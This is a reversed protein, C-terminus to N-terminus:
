ERFLVRTSDLGCAQADGSDCARQLVARVAGREVPGLDGGELHHAYMRCLYRGHDSCLQDFRARAADREAPTSAATAMTRAVMGCALVEGAGCGRDFLRRACTLDAPAQDVDWHYAAYNTCGIAFGLRCGQAFWPQAAESGDRAQVDWAHILCAHADGEDCRRECTAEAECADDIEPPSRLPGLEDALCPASAGEGQPATSGPTGGPPAAPGARCGAVAWGVLVVLFRPAQVM